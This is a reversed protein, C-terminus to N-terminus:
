NRVLCVDPNRLRHAGGQLERLLLDAGIDIPVAVRRRRRDGDRQVLAELLPPDPVAVQHAERGEPRPERPGGRQDAPLPPRRTRARTRVMRAPSRSPTIAISSTDNGEGQDRPINASSSPLSKESGTTASPASPSIRPYATEQVTAPSDWRRFMATSGALRPAPIPRASRRSHM